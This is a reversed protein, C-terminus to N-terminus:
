TPMVVENGRCYGSNSRVIRASVDHGVGRDRTAHRPGRLNLIQEIIEAGSLSPQRIRRHPTLHFLEDVPESADDRVMSRLLTTSSLKATAQRVPQPVM